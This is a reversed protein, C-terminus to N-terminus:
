GMVYHGRSGWTCGIGTLYVIYVLVAFIMMMMMMM